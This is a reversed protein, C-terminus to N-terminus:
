HLALDQTTATSSHAHMAKHILLLSTSLIVPFQQLVKTVNTWLGVCSLHSGVSTSDSRVALRSPNILSRRKAAYSDSLLEDVPIYVKTPDACYWQSDAFSLQMAQILTSLYEPSNHGMDPQLM